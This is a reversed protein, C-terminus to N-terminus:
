ATVGVAPPVTEDNEFTKPVQHLGMTLQVEAM